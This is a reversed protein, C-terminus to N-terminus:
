GATQGSSLSKGCGPCFRDTPDIRHNCSPCVPRLVAGCHTCYVADDPIKMRCSPCEPQLPKRTILYVILGIFYPAFVAVLCWLVANMGRKGADHYVYMGIGMMLFVMFIAITMAILIVIFGGPRNHASTIILRQQYLTILSGWILILAVIFGTLLWLIQKKSM